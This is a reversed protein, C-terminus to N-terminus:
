LVEVTTTAINDAGFSVCRSVNGVCFEFFGNGATIVPGEVVEEEATGANYTVRVRHGVRVDRKKISPM